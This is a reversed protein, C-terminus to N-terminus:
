RSQLKEHQEEVRLHYKKSYTMVVEKWIGELEGIMAGNTFSDRYCDM